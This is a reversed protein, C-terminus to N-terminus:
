TGPCPGTIRSTVRARVRALPPGDLCAARRVRIALEGEFGRATFTGNIDTTSVVSNSPHRCVAITSIRGNAVSDEEFECGGGSPSDGFGSTMGDKLDRLPDSSAGGACQSRRLNQLQTRMAQRAAEPLAPADVAVVEFATEWMGTDFVIQGPATQLPAASLLGFLPLALASRLM